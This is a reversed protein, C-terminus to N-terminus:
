VLVFIDLTGNYRGDHQQLSYVANRMQNVKWSDYQCKWDNSDTNLRQLHRILVERHEPGRPLTIISPLYDALAHCNPCLIILNEDEDSGGSAVPILHHIALFTRKHVNSLFTPPHWGCVACVAVGAGFNTRKFSRINNTREIYRRYADKNILRVTTHGVAITPKRGIRKRLHNEDNSDSNMKGNEINM